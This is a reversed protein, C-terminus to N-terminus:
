GLNVLILVIAQALVIVFVAPLTFFMLVYPLVWRSRSTGVVYGGIAGWGVASVTIIFELPVGFLEPRQYGMPEFYTPAAVLGWAAVLLPVGAVFAGLRTTRRPTGPAIAISPMRSM